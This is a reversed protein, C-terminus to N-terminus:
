TYFDEKKLEKHFSNLCITQNIVKKREKYYKRINSPISGEPKTSGTMAIMTGIVCEVDMTPYIGLVEQIYSFNSSELEELVVKLHETICQYEADNNEEKKKKNEVGNENEEEETERVRKATLSAESMPKDVVIGLLAGSDKSSAESINDTSTRPGPEEWKMQPLAEESSPTEVITSVRPLSRAPVLQNRHFM